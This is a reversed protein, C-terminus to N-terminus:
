DPLVLGGRAAPAPVDASALDFGEWWTAREPVLAGGAIAGRLSLGVVETPRGEPDADVVAAARAGDPVGADPPLTLAYGSGWVAPLLRLRPEDVALVIRREGGLVRRIDSPVVTPLPPAIGPPGAPEAVEEVESLRVRIVVRNHPLFRLPVRAADQVYGGLTSVNSAALATMAATIAPGHLVLGLPDAASFVRATGSASVGVRDSGPVYVACTGDERLRAAKVTAGSTSMWLHAGDSWYAMPAVLPGSGGPFALLCRRHAGLVEVATVLITKRTSGDGADTERGHSAHAGM